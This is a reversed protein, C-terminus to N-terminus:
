IPGQVLGLDRTKAEQVHICDLSSVRIRRVSAMTNEDMNQHAGSATSRNVMQGAVCSNGMEAWKAALICQFERGAGRVM